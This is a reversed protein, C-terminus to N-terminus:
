AWSEWRGTPSHSPGPDPRNAADRAETEKRGHMGDRQRLGGGTEPTPTEQRHAGRDDGMHRNASGSINPEPQPVSADSFPLLRIEHGALAERLQAWSQGLAISDGRECTVTAEVRGARRSFQVRLETQEDPRIVVAVSHAGTRRIFGAERTILAELRQVREEPSPLIERAPSTATEDPLPVESCVSAGPDLVGAAVAPTAVDAPAGPFATGTVTSLRTPLSWGGPVSRDAAEEQKRAPIMVAASVAARTGRQIGQSVGQMGAAHDPRETSVAARAGPVPPFQAASIAAAGRWLLPEAGQLPLPEPTTGPEPTGAERAEARLADVARAAMERTDVSVWDLPREVRGEGSGTVARAQPVSREDVQPIVGDDAFRSSDGGAASPEIDIGTPDAPLSPRAAPLPMGTQRSSLPDPTPIESKTDVQTEAESSRPSGGTPATRGSTPAPSTRLRPAVSEARDAEVRIREISTSAGGARDELVGHAQSATVEPEGPAWTDGWEAIGRPNISIAGRDIEAAPM